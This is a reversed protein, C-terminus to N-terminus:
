FTSKIYRNVYKVKQRLPAADFALAEKKALLDVREASTRSIALINVPSTNFRRALASVTWSDADKARLQRIEKIQDVNLPAAKSNHIRPPLNALTRQVPVEHKSILVSGDSLTIRPTHKPLNATYFLRRCIM